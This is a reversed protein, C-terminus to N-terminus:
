CITVKSVCTQMSALSQLQAARARVLAAEVAPLPLSSVSSTLHFAVLGEETGAVNLSLDSAM